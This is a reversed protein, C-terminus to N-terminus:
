WSVQYNLVKYRLLFIKVNSGGTYYQSASSGYISMLSQCHIREPPQLTWPNNYATQATLVLSVEWDCYCDMGSGYVTYLVHIYSQLKSLSALLEAKM